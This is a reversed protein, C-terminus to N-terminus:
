NSSQNTSAQTADPDFEAVNELVKAPLYPHSSEFVQQPLPTGQGKEKEKGKEEEEQQQAASRLAIVLDILPHVHEATPTVMPVVAHLLAPLVSVLAGGGGVDRGGSDRSSRSSDQASRAAAAAVSELLIKEALAVLSPAEEMTTGYVGEPEPEPEPEPEGMQLDEQMLDDVAATASPPALQLGGGGAAVAQQLAPQELAAACIQM